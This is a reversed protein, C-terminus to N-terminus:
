AAANTAKAKTSKAKAPTAETNINFREEVFGSAVPPEAVPEAPLEAPRSPVEAVEELAQEINDRTAEGRAPRQDESPLVAACGSLSLAVLAAIATERLMLSGGKLIKM